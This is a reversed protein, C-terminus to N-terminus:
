FAEILLLHNIVRKTPALAGVVGLLPIEDGKFGSDERLLSNAPLAKPRVLTFLRKQM